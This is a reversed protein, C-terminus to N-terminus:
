DNRTSGFDTGPEHRQYTDKCETAQRLGLPLRASTRVTGQGYGALVAVRVRAPGGDAGDGFEVMVGRSIRKAAHVFFHGARSAVGLRNERVDSLLAGITVGVNVARLEAGIACLAVRNEAPLNRHLRNLLVEVPKRQEARVGDHFALLAMGIGCHSIVEPKRGGARRAVHRVPQLRRVRDMWGGARCKGSRIARTAMGKVVPQVGLEIVVRRTEQQGVAVRIHSAREAVDVVVVIQRDRRGIASIRLAMQGGPLRGGIGDM